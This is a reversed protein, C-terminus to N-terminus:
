KPLLSKMEYELIMIRQNQYREYKVVYSIIMGAGSIILLTVLIIVIANVIKKM